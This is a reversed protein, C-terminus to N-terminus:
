DLFILNICKVMNDEDGRGLNFWNGLYYKTIEEVTGNVTSYLSNGDAFIVHVTRKM